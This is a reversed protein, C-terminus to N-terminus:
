GNGLMDALLEAVDDDVESNSINSSSSLASEAALLREGFEKSTSVIIRGAM